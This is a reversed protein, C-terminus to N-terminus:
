MQVCVSGVRPTCQEQRATRRRRRSWSHSPLATAASCRGGYYVRLALMVRARIVALRVKYAAIITAGAAAGVLWKNAANSAASSKQHVGRRAQLM